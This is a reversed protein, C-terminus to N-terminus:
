DKSLPLRAPYPTCKGRELYRNSLRAVNPTSTDMEAFKLTGFDTANGNVCARKLIPQDMNDASAEFEADNYIAACHQLLQYTVSNTKHAIKPGVM